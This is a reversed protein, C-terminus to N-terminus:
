PCAMKAPVCKTCGNLGPECCHQGAPCAGEYSSLTQARVSCQAADGQNITVQGAPGCAGAYFYKYPVGAGPGTVTATVTHVGTPLSLVVNNCPQAAGGDIAFNLVVTAVPPLIGLCNIDLNGAPATVVNLNFPVNATASGNSTDTARVVFVTEGVQTPTGSVTGSSPNLTLGVPLAGSQLAWLPNTAENVLLTQSYPQNVLAPPLPSLTQIWPGPPAVQNPLGTTYTVYFGKEDGSPNSPTSFVGNSGDQNLWVEDSQEFFVPQLAGNNTAVQNDFNFEVQQYNAM